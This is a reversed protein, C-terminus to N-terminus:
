GARVGAPKPEPRLDWAEGVRIEGNERRVGFDLSELSLTDTLGPRSREVNRRKLNNGCIRSVRPEGKPIIVKEALIRIPFSANMQNRTTKLTEDCSGPTSLVRKSGAKTLRQKTKAHVVESDECHLKLSGYRTADLVRDDLKERAESSAAWPCRRGGM